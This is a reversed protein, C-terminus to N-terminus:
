YRRPGRPGNNNSRREQPHAKNVRLNRGDVNKGDLAEIAQQASEEDAMQVFAFGKSNGTFKDTIIKASVVEGFEEFAKKLADENMSYSLNGVYINM